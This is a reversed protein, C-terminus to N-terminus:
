QTGFRSRYEGSSIFAKVMEARNYDGNFNNLKTLWFQYGSDNTDPADTPNRRLYGFYQMLVFSPNFEAQRVSGSDSVSLLAAERGATGGGGYANIAAQRDSTTPTVEAAAFLADVYQDATLSLPFKAIFVSTPVVLDIFARKNAELLQQYKAPLAFWSAFLVLALAFTAVVRSHSKRKRM